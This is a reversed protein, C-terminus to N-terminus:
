FSILRAVSLAVAAWTVACVVIFAAILWGARTRAAASVADQLEGFERHLLETDLSAASSSRWTQPRDAIDSIMAVRAGDLVREQRLMWKSLERSSKVALHSPAPLVTLKKPDVVVVVSRVDIPETHAEIGAAARLLESARSARAQATAALESERGDLTVTEGDFAVETVADGCVTVAFVGPPGIVLHDIRDSSGDIPVAHVIDWAPGLGDLAEGIALEGLATRYLSRNDRALPSSGLIRRMLTRSAVARQREVVTRMVSQGPVAARLTNAESM